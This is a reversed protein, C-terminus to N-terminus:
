ECVVQGKKELAPGPQCSVVAQYGDRNIGLPAEFPFEILGAEDGLHNLVAKLGIQAQRRRCDVLAAGGPGLAEQATIFSFEVQFPGKLDGPGSLDLPTRHKEHIINERGSGGELFRGLGQPNGACLAYAAQGQRPGERILVGHSDKVTVEDPLQDNGDEDRAGGQDKQDQNRVKEVVQVSKQFVPRREKEGDPIVQHQSGENEDLGDGPCSKKGRHIQEYAEVKVIFDNCHFCGSQFDQHNDTGEEEDSEEDPDERKENRVLQHGLGVAPGGFDPIDVNFLFPFLFLFANKLVDGIVATPVLQMVVPEVIVGLFLHLIGDEEPQIGNCPAGGPFHHGLFAGPPLFFAPFKLEHGLVFHVGLSTDQALRAIERRLGIGIDAHRGLVESIGGPFAKEEAGALQFVVDVLELFIADLGGVFSHLLLVPDGKGPVGKDDHHDGDWEEGRRLGLLHDGKVHQDRKPDDEKEMDRAGHGKGQSLRAPKRGKQAGPQAGNNKQTPRNIKQFPCVLLRLFM